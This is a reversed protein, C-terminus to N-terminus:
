HTSLFRVQIICDMLYEQAIAENCSVVHELVGPLVVQFVIVVVHFNVYICDFFGELLFITLFPKLSIEM